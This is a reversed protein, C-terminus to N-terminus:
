NCVMFLMVLFILVAKIGSLINALLAFVLFYPLLYVAPNQEALVPLQGEFCAEKYFGLLSYVNEGCRLWPFFLTLFIMFLLVICINKLRRKKKM